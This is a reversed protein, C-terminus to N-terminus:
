IHLKRKRLLFVILTIFVAYISTGIVIKVFLVSLNSLESLNILRLVIYMIISMLISPLSYVFYKITNIEKRIYFCQVICVILEACLTGIAAGISKFIPILLLNILLNTIAGALVSVIYVKNRQHPILFQTRIVNAFAIFLCSPMLFQFINICKSFGAGYFVPVFEKAVAMIGFSMPAAIFMTLILSKKLYQLTKKERKNALMNSIRPLMVTGLATILAIPIQIIKECSGYYGVETKTSMIGLMIKDMSNYFSIAIVPIFLVLNPKIHPIIDKFTIRTFRIYKKLMIWLIIQSLLVGIVSVFAYTYVDNKTKVFIFICIVSLLKVLSNRIVTIKFQEIGFFFWNIDLVASIVYILMIWGITKDDGWLVVYMIYFIIVFISIILQFAYISWFYKSMKAKDENVTAITRNGYNNVGLMAFMVFYCAIAYAYSYRGIGNSGLVRSVYPTTILPIVMTLIQYLSNYILNIKINKVM